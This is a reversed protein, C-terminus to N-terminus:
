RCWMCIVVDTVRKAVAGGPRISVQPQFMGMWKKKEFKNNVCHFIPLCFEKLESCAPAESDHKTLEIM